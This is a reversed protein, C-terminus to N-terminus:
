HILIIPSSILKWVNKQIDDKLYLKLHIDHFIFIKLHNINSLLLM